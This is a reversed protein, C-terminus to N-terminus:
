SLSKLNGETPSKVLKDVFILYYKLDYFNLVTYFKFGEFIIEKTHTQEGVHTDDM